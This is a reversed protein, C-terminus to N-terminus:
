SESYVFETATNAFVREWRLHDPCFAEYMVLLTNAERLFCSLVQRFILVKRQSGDHRLACHSLAKVHKM